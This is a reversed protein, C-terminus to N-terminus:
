VLIRDRELTQSTETEDM